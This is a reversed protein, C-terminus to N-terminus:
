NVGRRRAPVRYNPNWPPEISKAALGTIEKISKNLKFATCGLFLFAKNKLFKVLVM